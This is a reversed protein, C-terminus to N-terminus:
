QRGRIKAFTGAREQELLGALAELDDLVRPSATGAMLANGLEGLRTRSGRRCGALLSALLQDHPATAPPNALRLLITGLQRPKSPDGPSTTSKLAILAADFLEALQRIDRYLGSQLGTTSM